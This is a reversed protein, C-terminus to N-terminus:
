PRVVTAFRGIGVNDKWFLKIVTQNGVGDCAPVAATGDAPTSDICVVGGSAPLQATIDSSWQTMDAIALQAPTCNSSLCTIAGTSPNNYSGASFGVQNARIRDSMQYGLLVAKQRLQVGANMQMSLTQMRAAGIFGVAAVLVAVLAEILAFGIIQRRLTRKSAPRNRGTRGTRSTRTSTNM